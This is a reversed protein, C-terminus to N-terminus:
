HANLPIDLRIEKTSRTTSTFHCILKIINGNAFIINTNAFYINTNALIINTNALDINANAFIINNNTFIINTNAFIINANAFTYHSIANIINAKAFIYVKYQYFNGRWELLIIQSSYVM